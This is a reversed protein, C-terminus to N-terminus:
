SAKKIDSLKSNSSGPHSYIEAQVVRHSDQDTVDLCMTVSKSKPKMLHALVELLSTHVQHEAALKPPNESIHKLIDSYNLM